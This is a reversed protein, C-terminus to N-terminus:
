PHQPQAAREREMKAKKVALSQSFGNLAALLLIVASFVLPKPKSKL